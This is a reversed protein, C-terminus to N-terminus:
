TTVIHLDAPLLPRIASVSRRCRGEFGVIFRIQAGQDCTGCPDEFAAGAARSLRLGGNVPRPTGSPDRQPVLFGHLDEKMIELNGEDIVLGFLVQAHFTCCFIVPAMRVGELACINPGVDAAVRWRVSACRTGPPKCGMFLLLLHYLLSNHRARPGRDPRIREFRDPDHVANGPFDSVM